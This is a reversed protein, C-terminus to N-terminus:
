CKLLYDNSAGPVFLNHIGANVTVPCPLRAIETMSKADLVILWSTEDSPRSAPVLVVGDDEEAGGPRPVFQPESGVLAGDDKLQWEIANGVRNGGVDEKWIANNGPDERSTRPAYSLGYLFHYGFKGAVNVPSCMAFDAIRQTLQVRKAERTDLHLTFRWLAYETAVPTGMCELPEGNGGSVDITLTRGDIDMAHVVHFLVGHTASTCTTVHHMTHRDFVHFEINALPEYAFLGFFGESVDLNVFKDYRLRKSSVPIIVYKSTIGFSHAFSIRQALPVKAANFYSFTAVAFDKYETVASKPKPSTSNKQALNRVTTHTSKNIRMVRYGAECQPGCPKIKLRVYWAVHIDGGSTRADDSEWYHAGAFSLGMSSFIKEGDPCLVLEGKTNLEDDLINVVPGPFESATCIGM